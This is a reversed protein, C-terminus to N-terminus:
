RSWSLASACYRKTSSPTPPSTRCSYASETRPGSVTNAGAVRAVAIDLDAYTLTHTELRVAPREPSDIAADALEQAFNTM